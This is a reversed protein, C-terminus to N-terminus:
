RKKVLIGLGDEIQMTPADMVTWSKNPIEWDFGYKEALVDEPNKPVSLRLDSVIRYETAEIRKYIFKFVSFEDLYAYKIEPFRFFGFCYSKEEEHEYYFLDVKVGKFVYAQEAIVDNFIFEHVKKFGNKLLHEEIVSKCYDDAADM